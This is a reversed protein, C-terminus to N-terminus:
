SRSPSPGVYFASPPEGHEAVDWGDPVGGVQVMGGLCHTRLIDAPKPRKIKKGDPSKRVVHLTIGMDIQETVTLAELERAQAREISALGGILM